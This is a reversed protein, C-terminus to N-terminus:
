FHYVTSEFTQDMNIPDPKKNAPHYPVLWPFKWRTRATGVRRKPWIYIYVQIFINVFDRM